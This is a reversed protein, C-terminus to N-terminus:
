EKFYQSINELWTPSIRDAPLSQDNRESLRDCLKFCLWVEVPPNLDVCIVNNAFIKKGELFKGFLIM